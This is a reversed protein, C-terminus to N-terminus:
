QPDPLKRRTIGVATTPRQVDRKPLHGLDELILRYASILGVEKCSPCEPNDQHMQEWERFFQARTDDTGPIPNPTVTHDIWQTLIGQQAAPKAPTQPIEDLIMLSKDLVFLVPTRVGDIMRYLTM